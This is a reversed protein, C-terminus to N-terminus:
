VRGVWAIQEGQAIAGIGYKAILIFNFEAKIDIFKDNNPQYFTVFDEGKKIINGLEKKWTFYGGIPSILNECLTDSIINEPKYGEVVKGQWTENLWNWLYEVREQIQLYDIISHSSAEWTCTIPPTDQGNMLPWVSANEFSGEPITNTTEIVVEPKLSKFYKIYEGKSFIHNLSEKGTTHIDIIYDAKSSLIMLQSALKLEISLNDSALQQKYFNLKEQKNSFSKTEFIRNWNVGSVPNWRGLMTNYAVNQSGMPNACPVIVLTGKFNKVKSINKKFGDVIKGLLYTGFIEPGHLNAQLYINPGPLGSDFTHSILELNQGNNLEQIQHFNTKALM